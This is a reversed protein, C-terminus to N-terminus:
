KLWLFNPGAKEKRTDVKAAKSQSMSAHQHQPKDVNKLGDIVEQAKQDEEEHCVRQQSAIKAAV